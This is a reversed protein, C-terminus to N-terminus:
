PSTAAEDAAYTAAVLAAGVGAPSTVAGILKAGATGLEWGAFGCDLANEWLADNWALCERVELAVELIEEIVPANAVAILLYPFFWGALYALSRSGDYEHVFGWDGYVFGDAFAATPVVNGDETKTLAAQSWEPDYETPRADDGDLIGDGDTDMAWPDSSLAQAETADDLGDGDFDSQGDTLTRRSPLRRVEGNLWRGAM